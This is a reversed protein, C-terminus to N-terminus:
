HRIWVRPARHRMAWDVPLEAVKTGFIPLGPPACGNVVLM